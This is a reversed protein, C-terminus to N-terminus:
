KGTWAILLRDAPVCPRTSDQLSMVGHSTSVNVSIKSSGAPTNDTTVFIPVKFRFIYLGVYIGVYICMCVYTCGFMCMVIHLRLYMYLVYVYMCVHMCAHVCARSRVRVCVCVFSYKIVFASCANRVLNM